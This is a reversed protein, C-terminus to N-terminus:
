IKKLDVIEHAHYLKLLNGSKIRFQSRRKLKPQTSLNELKIGPDYYLRGSTMEKLFLMFDTGMGLIVKNGYSYSRVPDKKVISPVYAARSHKRNWHLLLSSFSWCAAVNDQRDILAITGESDTIRGSHGDFGAVHLMLKTTMQETGVKYVGGFNMRDARGLKDLYGYKKVFETPGHDKYYGGTPEPTMLTIVSSHYKDFSIASFQKVEWGLYDPEAFGNPSVGLEAELTYGGCNSSECPLITQDRGLRKSKIWGAEHIRKLESLLQTRSDVVITHPATRLVKFVGVSELSGLKEFQNAIMSDPPAVYGYITPLESIGLFLLRGDTRQTMLDSPPKPSGQLFGSFRVEPYKPYLILQAEPALSIEGDDTLWGFNLKAKFRTRVYDGPKESIIDMFPLINLTEFSGGLYVQNKSNDNPALRKVLVKRCQQGSFMLLLKDLDM